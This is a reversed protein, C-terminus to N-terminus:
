KIELLKYYNIRIGASDPIFDSTKQREEERLVKEPDIFGVIKQEHGGRCTTDYRLSLVGPAVDKIIVKYYKNPKLRKILSSDNKDVWIKKIKILNERPYCLSDFTYTNFCRNVTDTSLIKVRM